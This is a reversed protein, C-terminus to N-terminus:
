RVGWSWSAIITPTSHVFSTHNEYVVLRPVSDTRQPFFHTHLPFLLFGCYRESKGAQGRLPRVEIRVLESKRWYLYTLLYTLISPIPHFTLFSLLALIYLYYFYPYYLSFSLVYVFVRYRIILNAYM